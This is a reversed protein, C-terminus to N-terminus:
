RGQLRAVESPWRKFQMSLLLRSREACIDSTSMTRSVLASNYKFMVLPMVIGLFQRM